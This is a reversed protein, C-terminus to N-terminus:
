SVAPDLPSPPLPDPVALPGPLAEALPELEIPRRVVVPLRPEPRGLPQGYGSAPRCPGPKRRQVTRPDGCGFEGEAVESQGPLLREDLRRTVRRSLVRAHGQLGEAIMSGAAPDQLRVTRGPLYGTTDPTLGLAQLKAM